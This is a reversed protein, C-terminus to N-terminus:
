GSTPGSRPAIARLLLVASILLVAGAAAVLAYEWPFGRPAAFSPGARRTSQRQEIEATRAAIEGSSRTDLAAAQGGAPEAQPEIEGEDEAREAERETQESSSAQEEAAAQEQEAEAPPEEQEAVEPGAIVEDEIVTSRDAGRERPPLGVSARWANDLGDRDFGYITTLANDVTSGAKFTAFLAAFQQPGYTGILYTVISAAQGYFVDVQGAINTNSAMGRVPLVTDREIARQLAGGRRALWDGEALTAVGEDLWAPLTGFAGEGAIKTLVHTLEHRIVWRSPDYIHVLDALVRVGGTIVQEDFGESRIRQVGSADSESRWVYVKLPFDVEIGLLAAMAAVADAGEEAMAIAAGEDHYYRVMIRGREIEIWEYRPDEYRWIRAATETVSGDTATLQWYWRIDAGVPIYFDAGRTALNASIRAVGGTQLEAPQRTLAGEPLVTYFFVAEALQAGDSVLATFSVSDPFQEMRISTDQVQPASQGRVAGLGALLAALLATLLLAALGSRAKVAKM